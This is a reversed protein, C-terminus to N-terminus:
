SLIHHFDNQSEMKRSSLHMNQSSCVYKYKYKNCTNTNTVNAKWKEWGQTCPSWNQSPTVGLRLQADWSAMLWVCRTRSWRLFIKWYKLIKWYKEVQWWDFVDQLVWAIVNELIEINKLIDWSRIPFILWVWRKRSWCLFLKWQIGKNNDIVLFVPESFRIWTLRMESM